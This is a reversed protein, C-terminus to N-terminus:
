RLLWNRGEVQSSVTFQLPVEGHADGKIKLVAWEPGRYCNQQNFSFHRMVYPDQDGSLGVFQCIWEGTGSSVPPRRSTEVPRPAM